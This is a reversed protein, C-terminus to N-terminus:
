LDVNLIADELEDAEMPSAAPVNNNDNGDNSNSYCHDADIDIKMIKAVELQRSIEKKEDICMNMIVAIVHVLSSAQNMMTAPCQQLIKFLKIRTILNESAIRIQQTVDPVKAPITQWGFWPLQRLTVISDNPLLQARLPGSHQIYNHPVTGDFLPSLFSIKCNPTIGLYIHIFNTFDSVTRNM